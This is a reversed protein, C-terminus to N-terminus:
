DTTHTIKAIKGLSQLANEHDAKSAAICAHSPVEVNYDRDHASFAAVYVALDTAVGSLIVTDIHNARLLSNVGTNYFADVRPKTFIPEGEIPVAFSTFETGWTGQELVGFDQAGGFLPSGAPHNTYGPTFGVRVHTVLMKSQRASALLEMVAEMSGNQEAFDVYGKASLKGNPDVIDNIFDICILAKKSSM